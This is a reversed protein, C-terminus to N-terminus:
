NKNNFLCSLKMGILARNEQILQLNEELVLSNKYVMMVAFMANFCAVAFLIICVFKLTTNQTKLEQHTKLYNQTADRALPSIGPFNPKSM